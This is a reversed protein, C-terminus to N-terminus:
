VRFARSHVRQHGHEISRKPVSGTHQPYSESTAAPASSASTASSSDTSSGSSSGSSSGGPCMTLVLNAQDSCVHTRTDDPQNYAATCVSDGAPCDIPVCTPNNPDNSMSPSLSMGGNSFPYGDINSLDYFIKGGSPTIEFQSVPGSESPSLKISIGNGQEGYSESYSGQMEAMNAHQSQGVSAFYIPFGCNNIVTATGAMATPALALLVAALGTMKSLSM